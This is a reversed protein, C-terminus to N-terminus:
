VLQGTSKLAETKNDTKNSVDIGRRRRREDQLLGVHCQCFLLLEMDNLVPRLAAGQGYHHPTGFISHSGVWLGLVLDGVGPQVPAVNFGCLSGFAGDPRADFTGDPLAPTSQHRPRVVSCINPSFSLVKLEPLFLQFYPLLDM